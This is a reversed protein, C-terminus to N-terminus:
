AAISDGHILKDQIYMERLRQAMAGPRGSGIPHRDISVVPMVMSISDTIFAESAGKAEEVSFPREEVRLGAQGAIDLISSRTIGHLLANSLGRTVLAGDSTIIHFNASCTETVMGDEVFLTDDFGQRVSEVKSTSAYLLQVTKIHRNAWRGDPATRVSIGTEWKPNALMNRGQTFMMITPVLEDSFVFNRDEVGRSVQLYVLGNSVNNRRAIEKHLELLENESIAISIGLLDLSKRLRAAHRPFDILKQDAIATVEYIADAFLFGRDFVSIKAQTEPLWEGNLYITRSM